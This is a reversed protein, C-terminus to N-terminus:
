EAIYYIIQTLWKKPDPETSPDTIYEELIPVNNVIGHDKMFADIAYHASSSKSSEGYYDVQIANGAPLSTTSLNKFSIAEAIPIAAAIDTTSEGENWKYFLGAPRGVMEEGMKSLESILSVHNGGLFSAVTSMSIEQRNIVFHKENVNVLKVKHGLYAGSAREEAIRKLSALGQDFQKKLTGKMGTVLMMGRALFPLDEEDVMNWTLEKEKGGDAIKFDVMSSSGYDHFNMKIKAQDNQLSETIKLDGSGSADGKWEYSAGEGVTKDGFTINMTTDAAAWPSWSEWMKLDDFLNFIQASSASIKISRSTNM